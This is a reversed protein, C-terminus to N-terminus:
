HKELVKRDPVDFFEQHVSLGDRWDVPDGSLGHTVHHCIANVDGLEVDCQLLYGLLLTSIRDHM